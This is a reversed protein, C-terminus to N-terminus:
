WSRQDDQYPHASQTIPTLFFLILAVYFVNCITSKSFYFRGLNGSRSDALKKKSQYDAEQASHGCLQRDWFINM